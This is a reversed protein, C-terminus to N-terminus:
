YNRDCKLLNVYLLWGCQLRVYMIKCRYKWLRHYEVDGEPAQPPFNPHFGDWETKLPFV